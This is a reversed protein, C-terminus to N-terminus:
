QGRECLPTRSAKVRRAAPRSHRLRASQASPCMCASSSARSLSNLFILLFVCFMGLKGRTQGAVFRGIVCQDDRLPFRAGDAGTRKIVVIYAFAQQSLLEAAM